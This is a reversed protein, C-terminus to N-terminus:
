LYTLTIQPCSYPAFHVVTGVDVDQQKFVIFYVHIQFPLMQM